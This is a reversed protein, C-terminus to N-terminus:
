SSDGKSEKHRGSVRGKQGDVTRQASSAQCFLAEENKSV